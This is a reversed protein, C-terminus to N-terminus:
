SPNLREWANSKLRHYVLLSPGKRSVLLRPFPERPGFLLSWLRRSKLTIRIPCDTRLLPRNWRSSRRVRWWRRRFKTLYPLIHNISSCTEGSVTFLHTRGYLSQLKRWTYGSRHRLAFRYLAGSKRVSRDTPGVGGWFSSSDIRAPAARECLSRKKKPRGCDALRFSFSFARYLAMWIQM